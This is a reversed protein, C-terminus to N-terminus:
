QRKTNRRVENRSDAPPPSQLVTLGYVITIDIAVYLYPFLAHGFQLLCVSLVASGHTSNVSVFRSVTINTVQESRIVLVFSAGSQYDKSVSISRRSTKGSYLASVFDNLTARSPKWM